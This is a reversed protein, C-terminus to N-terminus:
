HLTANPPRIIAGLGIMSPHVGQLVQREGHRALLEPGDLPGITVRKPPQTKAANREADAYCSKCLPPGEWKISPVFRGDLFCM